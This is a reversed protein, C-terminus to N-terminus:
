PVNKVMYQEVEEGPTPPKIGLALYPQIRTDEALYKARKKNMYEQDQEEVPIAAYWPVSYDGFADPGDIIAQKEAKRPISAVESGLWGLTGLTAATPLAKMGYKLGYGLVKGLM